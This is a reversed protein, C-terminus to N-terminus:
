PVIPASPRCPDAAGAGRARPERNAKAQGTARVRRSQPAAATKASKADPVPAPHETSDSSLHAVSASQGAPWRQAPDGDNSHLGVHSITSQPSPLRHTLCSMRRCTTRARIRSSRHNGPPCRNHWGTRQSKKRPVGTSDRSDRRHRTRRPRTRNSHSICRGTSSQSRNSALDHKRRPRPCQMEQVTARPYRRPKHARHATCNCRSCPTRRPRMRQRLHRFLPHRLPHRHLSLCCVSRSQVHRRPVSALSDAIRIRAAAALGRRRHSVRGREVSRVM